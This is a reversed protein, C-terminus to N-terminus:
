DRDPHGFSWCSCNRDCYCKYYAERSVCERHCNESYAGDTVHSSCERGSCGQVAGAVLAITGLIRLVSM